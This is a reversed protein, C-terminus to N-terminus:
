EEAEHSPREKPRRLTKLYAKQEATIRYSEVAKQIAKNHVWVPLVPETFYGITDPYQKALATAFYWAQMMRVYYDDSKASAAMKLYAPSFDEDLYLRMLLGVAYRQHYPRPDALWVRIHSLVDKKEHEFSVPAPADCVAWNDVYPLFAQLYALATQYDKQRVIFNMHLINEEYYRHPLATMFSDLRLDSGYQRAAKKLAPTRIGIITKADVTPLLRSVFAQYDKNQQQLLTQQIEKVLSTM